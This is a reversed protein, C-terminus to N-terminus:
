ARRIEIINHALDASWGYEDATFEQFLEEYAADDMRLTERIDWEFAEIASSNDYDEEFEIEQNKILEGDILLKYKQVRTVTHEDQEFDFNPNIQYIIRIAEYHAEQMTTATINFSEIDKADIRYNNEQNKM